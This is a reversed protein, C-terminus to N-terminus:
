LKPLRPPDTLSYLTSQLATGFTNVAVLLKPRIPVLHHFHVVATNKNEQGEVVASLSTLLVHFHKQYVSPLSLQKVVCTYVIM